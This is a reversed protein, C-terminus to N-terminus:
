RINHLMGLFMGFGIVCFVSSIIVILGRCRYRDSVYASIMAVVFAVAFPPVSMLQAKAATYGLGVIISPTFSHHIWSDKLEDCFVQFLESHWHISYSVM